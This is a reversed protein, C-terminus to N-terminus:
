SILCSPFPMFSYASTLKDGWCNFISTKFYYRPVPSTLTSLSSKSSTHGWDFATKKKEDRRITGAATRSAEGEGKRALEYRVDELDFWGNHIWGVQVGVAITLLWECPVACKSSTKSSSSSGSSSSCAGRPRSRKNTQNPSGGLSRVSCCIRPPPPPSM